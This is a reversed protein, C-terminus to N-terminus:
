YILMVGLVSIFGLVFGGYVEFPQHTGLFLRASGTMGAAIISLAFYGQLPVGFVLVLAIILGNIGGMGVMHISLKWKLNSAVLLLVTVPISLAYAHLQSSLPLRILIIFMFVYIILILMFPLNREERNLVQFNSIMNRLYLVPLLTVPFILTGLLTITLLVRKIDPPLLSIYSGSNLIILMGIAPLILPHFLISFIQAARKEIPIM